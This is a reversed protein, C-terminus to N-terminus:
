HRPGLFGPDQEGTSAPYYVWHCPVLIGPDQEGMSAPYYVGTVHGQFGLTRNSDCLGQLKSIVWRQRKLCSNLCDVWRQHKLCSNLCDM